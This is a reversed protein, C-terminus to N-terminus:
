PQDPRLGSDPRHTTGGIAAGVGAPLLVLGATWVALFADFRLREVLGMSDDAEAVALGILWLAGFALAVIAWTATTAAAGRRRGDVYAWGFSVPVVGGFAILGAGINAGGGDDPFVFPLSAYYGALAAGMVALRVVVRVLTAIAHHGM